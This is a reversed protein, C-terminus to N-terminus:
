RLKFSIPLTLTDPSCPMLAQTLQEEFKRDIAQMATEDLGYGLGSVVRKNTIICLSDITIEVLVTGDVGADMAARPYTVTRTALLARAIVEASDSRQAAAVLPLPFGLILIAARVCSLKCSM